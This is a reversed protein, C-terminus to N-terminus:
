RYEARFSYAYLLSLRGQDGPSYKGNSNDRLMRLHEVHPGFVPGFMAKIKQADYEIPINAVYRYVLEDESDEAEM